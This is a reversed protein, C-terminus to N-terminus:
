IESAYIGKDQYYENKGSIESTYIGKNQYYENMWNNIIQIEANRQEVLWIPDNETAARLDLHHAGLETVLAVISNSINQLVGGGSWPDLLGNSFIINSGYNKLVKQIDHGGFETTIWHARPEVGFMNFCDQKYSDIDFTFQPFISNEPNSSMPMVMETCAQWNWGNEGHPDDNVDFCKEEGTYNYYVSVGAFIQDLVDTGNSFSDIVKCVERIPFGPLPMLFSAPYPYDVMALNSYASSLWDQVEETSKLDRCMRFKKSLNQLGEDREGYTELAKWSQQIV